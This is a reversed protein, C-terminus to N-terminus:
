KSAPTAGKLFALLKHSIESTKGFLILHDGAKIIESASPNYIVNGDREFALVQADYDNRIRSESLTKGCFPNDDDIKMKITGYGHAGIILEEFHMTSFVSMDSMRRKISNQISRWVSSRLFFIHFMYFCFVILLAGLMMSVSYHLHVDKSFIRFHAYEDMERSAALTNVFSGIMTVFIINGAIMLVSAI